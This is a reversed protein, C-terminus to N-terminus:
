LSYTACIAHGAWEGAGRAKRRAQPRPPVAGGAAGIAGLAQALQVELQQIRAELAQTGDGGEARPLPPAWGQARALRLIHSAIAFVAHAVIPKDTPQFPASDRHDAKNGHHNLTYLNQAVQQELGEDQLQKIKKSLELRAPFAARKLLKVASETILRGQNGVMSNWQHYAHQLNNMSKAIEYM